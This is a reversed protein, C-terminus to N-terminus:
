RAAFGAFHGRKQEDITGIQVQQTRAFGVDIARRRQRIDFFATNLDGPRKSVLQLAKLAVGLMFEDIAHLLSLDIADFKDDQVRAAERMGTNRQSIGKQRNLNRKDFDVQAIGKRSLFKPVDTIETVDCVAAQETESREAVFESQLSGALM